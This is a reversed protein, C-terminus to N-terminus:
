FGSVKLKEIAERAAKMDKERRKVNTQVDRIKKAIALAQENVSRIGSRLEEIGELLEDYCDPPPQTPVVKFGSTTIVPATPAKAAEPLTPSVTTKDKQKMTENERTTETPPPTAAPSGQEKWPMFVLKGLGGSAVLPTFANDMQEFANHGLDLAHLLIKRDIIIAVKPPAGTLKSIHCSVAPLKSDETLLEFSDGDIRIKLLKHANDNPLRLLLENMQRLGAKDLELKWAMNEVKPVIQRWCPYKGSPSRGTWTWNGSKIVVCTIDKDKVIGLKTTGQMNAPFLCAPLRLVCEEKVPLPYPVHCLQRGNTATLGEPSMLIGHLVKRTDDPSISPAIRSLTGIFDDPVDFLEPASLQLEPFDKTEPASFDRKLSQGSIEESITAGGEALPEIKLMARKDGKIFIKVEALPLLTDFGEPADSVKIRCSLFEDLNTATLSVTQRDLTQLRACGLIPLAPKKPAVKNLGTLAKDLEHKSILLM